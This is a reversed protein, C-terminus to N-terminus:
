PADNVIPGSVIGITSGAKSARSTVVIPGVTNSGDLTNGAASAAIVSGVIVPAASGSSWEVDPRKASVMVSFRNRCRMSERPTPLTSRAARSPSCGVVFFGPQRFLWPQSYMVIKRTSFRGRRHSKADVHERARLKRGVWQVITKPAQVSHM